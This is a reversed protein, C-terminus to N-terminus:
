TQLEQLRESEELLIAHLYEVLPERPKGRGRLAKIPCGRRGLEMTNWISVSMARNEPTNLAALFQVRTKWLHLVKKRDAERNSRLHAALSSLLTTTLLKLLLENQQAM